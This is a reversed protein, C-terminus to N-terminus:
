GAARQGMRRCLEIAEARDNVGLKKWLERKRYHVTRISLDLEVSVQKAMMGQLFLQFLRLEEGSLQDQLAPPVARRRSERAEADGRVADRMAQLLRSDEVQKEMVECAGLKMAKVVDTLYWSDALMIIQAHRVASRIRSLLELGDIDSLVRNVIFCGSISSDLATLCEQGRQFSKTLWGDLACIRSIRVSLALDGDVVVVTPVNQTPFSISM